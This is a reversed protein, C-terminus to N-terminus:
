PRSDDRHYPPQPEVIQPQTHNNADRDDNIKDDGREGPCNNRRNQSPHVDIRRKSAPHDQRRHGIHDPEDGKQAQGTDKEYLYYSLM